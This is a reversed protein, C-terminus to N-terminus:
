PRTAALTADLEHDRTPTGIESNENNFNSINQDVTTPPFNRDDQSRKQIEKDSLAQNLGEQKNQRNNERDRTLIQKVNNAYCRPSNYFVGFSKQINRIAFFQIKM